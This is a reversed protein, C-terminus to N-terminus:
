VMLNQPLPMETDRGKTKALSQEWAEGFQIMWTLSGGSRKRRRGCRANGESTWRDGGLRSGESSAATHARAANTIRTSQWRHLQTRDSGQSPEGQEIGSNIKEGWIKEPRQIPTGCESASQRIPRLRLDTSGRSTTQNSRDGWDLQDLKCSKSTAQRGWIGHELIHENRLLDSRRTRKRGSQGSLFRACARVVFLRESQIRPLLAECKLVRM